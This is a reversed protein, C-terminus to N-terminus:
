EEERTARRITLEEAVQARIRNDIPYFLWLASAALWMLAPILSVLYVIGRVAEADQAQNPVYGFYALAYGTVAGASGAGAKSAFSTLASVAGESRFGHRYENYDIIEAMVTYVVALAGGFGLSSVVLCGMILPVNDKPVALLLLHAAASLVTVGVMVPRTGRRVAARPFVVAGALAPLLSVAAAVAVLTPDGVVYTFFYVQSSASLLMAAVTLFKTSVLVALPRSRLMIVKLDGFRYGHATLPTVRERLRAVGLVTLLVTAACYALIVAQWGARGGGFLEVLPLTAAGVVAIGVLYAVGRIAAFQGRDAARTTVVPILSNFPIDMLDNVVGFLLYLGWVTVLVLGPSVAPPAIWMLAFVVVTLVNGALLYPRFRGWRTAPLRDVAYGMLPDSIADAVRSVLLLTGVMAATIGVVDTLYITLFGSTTVLMFVSAFCVSFYALKETRQPRDSRLAAPTIPTTSTTSM